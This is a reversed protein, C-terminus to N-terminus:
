GEWGLEQKCTCGSRGDFFRSQCNRGWVQRNLDGIAKWPKCTARSRCMGAGDCSMVPGCRIPIITGNWVGTQESVQGLRVDVLVGLYTSLGNACKLPSVPKGKAQKQARESARRSAQRSVVLLQRGAQGGGGGVLRMCAKDLCVHPIITLPHLHLEFDVLIMVLFFFFFLVLSIM